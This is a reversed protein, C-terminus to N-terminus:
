EWRTEASLTGQWNAELATDHASAAHNTQWKYWGPQTVDKEKEFCRFVPQPCNLTTGGGIIDSDCATWAYTGDDEELHRLVLVENPRAWESGKECVFLTEGDIIKKEYKYAYNNEFARKTGISFFQCKNDEM